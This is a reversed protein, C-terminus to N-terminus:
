RLYARISPSSRAAPTANLGRTHVLSPVGCGATVLVNHKAASLALLRSPASVLALRKLRQFCSIVIAIRRRRAAM